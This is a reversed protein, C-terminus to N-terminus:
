GRVAARRRRSENNFAPGLVIGGQATSYLGCECGFREGPAPAPRWLRLRPKASFASLDEM